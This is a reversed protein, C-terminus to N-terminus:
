HTLTYMNSCTIATNGRHREWEYSIPAQPADRKGLSNQGISIGTTRKKVGDVPARQEMRVAKHGQPLGLRKRVQLVHQSPM